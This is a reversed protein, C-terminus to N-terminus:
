APYPPVDHSDLRLQVFHLVERGLPIPGHRHATLEVRVPYRGNFHQAPQFAGAAVRKEQLRHFVALLPAPVGKQSVVRLQFQGAAVADQGHPVSPRGRFRDTMGALRDATDGRFVPARAQVGQRGERSTEHPIPGVIIDLVRLRGQGQVCVIRFAEPVQIQHEEVLDDSEVVQPLFDQQEGEHAALVRLIVVRPGSVRQPGHPLQHLVPRGARVLRAAPRRVEPGEKVFVGIAAHHLLRFCIDTVAINELDDQRVAQFRAVFSAEQVRVADQARQIRRRIQEIKGAIVQFHGARRRFRQDFQVLAREMRKGQGPRATAPVRRGLVFGQFPLEQGIFFLPRFM